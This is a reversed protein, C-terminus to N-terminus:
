AKSRRIRQAAEHFHTLFPTSYSWATQFAALFEYASNGYFEVLPHRNQEVVKKTVPYRNQVRNPHKDSAFLDGFYHQDVISLLGLLNRLIPCQINRLKHTRITGTFDRLAQPLKDPQARFDTNGWYRKWPAFDITRNLRSHFSAM